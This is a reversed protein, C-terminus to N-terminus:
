PVRSPFHRGRGPSTVAAAHPRSRRGATVSPTFSPSHRAAPPSCLKPSASTLPQRTLPPPHARSRPLPALTALPLDLHLGAPTLIPSGSRGSPPPRLPQA